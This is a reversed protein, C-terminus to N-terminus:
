GHPGGAEPVAYRDLARHLEEKVAEGPWPEHNERYYRLLIGVVDGPTKLDMRIALIKLEKKTEKTVTIQPRNEEKIPEQSGESGQSGTSEM